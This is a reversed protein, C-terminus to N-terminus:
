PPAFPRVLPRFGAPLEPMSSSIAGDEGEVEAFVIAAAPLAGAHFRYLGDAGAQLRFQGYTFGGNDSVALRVARPRPGDVRVVIEPGRREVVPAPPPPPFPRSPRLPARAVLARLLHSWRAIMDDHRDYSAAKGCYPWRQGAPCAAPCAAPCGAPPAGPAGPMCRAPCGTGFYWEHDFDPMLALSKAPARVRQFTALVQPLPFFEDQAGVLMYVAGRQRDAFALPDLGAILAAPGVDGPGEAGAARVLTRLWSGAAVAEALGGSANVPLIGRVRDDTGGVIFSAIGGMSVGTVVLAAPDVEPRAELLTLARLLAYAYSYLWSPRVDAGGQFLPRPDAFTVARGESGGLGPASIALAVVDVNRALEVAVSLDAEGGLGHAVVVGPLSRPAQAGSRAALFGHIRITRAAGGPQWERAAFTVAEARVSPPVGKVVPASTAALDDARRAAELDFAAPRFGAESRACAALALVGAVLLAAAAPRPSSSRTL